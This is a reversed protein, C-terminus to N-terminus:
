NKYFSTRIFDLYIDIEKMLVEKNISTEEIFVREMYDTYIQKVVFRTVNIMKDIDVGSKVNCFDLNYNYFKERFKPIEGEVEYSYKAIKKKDIKDHFEFLYPYNEIIELKLIIVNRIRYLFDTNNWDIKKELENMVIKISYYILFDYLEEKDKFYHYLLGRSVGANKVIQNTSSKEYSQKSFEEFGHNIIRQVRENSLDIHKFRDIM